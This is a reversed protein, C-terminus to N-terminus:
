RGGTAATGRWGIAVTTGATAYAGAHGAGNRYGLASDLVWRPSLQLRLGVAGTWEREGPHILPERVTGELGVLFSEVVFTREIALGATWRELDFAGTSRVLAGPTVSANLHVRVAGDFSRTAIAGLTPLASPPGAPSAPLLTGARLALAPLNDSEATLQHLVSVEVATSTTTLGGQAIRAVPVTIAVETRPFVGLALAPEIMMRTLGGSVREYRPPAVQIEFGWREVPTADEVLFPRGRDLNHYDTQAPLPRSALSCAVALLAAPRSSRFRSVPTSSAPRTALDGRASPHGTAPRASPGPM